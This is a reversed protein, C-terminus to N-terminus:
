VNCISPSVGMNIFDQAGETVHVPVFNNMGPVSYLINSVNAGNQNLNFPAIADSTQNSLLQPSFSNNPFLGNLHAYASQITRSYFSSQAFM